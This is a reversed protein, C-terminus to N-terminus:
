LMHRCIQFFFTNIRNTKQRDIHDFLGVGSMRPHRHPSRRHRVGEPATKKFMIRLIRGPRIAITEDKRGAMTRGQEISQEMETTILDSKIIQFVKALLAAQGRTMGFITMSGSNFGRGTRQALSQCGSHTHGHRFSRQSRGEVSRFKDHDIMKSVPNDAITVQHLSERM